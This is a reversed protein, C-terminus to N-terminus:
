TWEEIREGDGDRFSGTVIMILDVLWWIGLGGFTVLQLFGTGVKGAYFRHAGFVGFLLCLIFAPLIKRESPGVSVQVHLPHQADMGVGSAPQPVGCAPCVVSNVDIVVGCRPCYKTPRPTLHTGM